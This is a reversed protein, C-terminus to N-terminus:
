VLSKAYRAARRHSELDAKLAVVTKQCERLRDQQALVRWEVNIARAEELYSKAYIVQSAALKLEYELEGIRRELRAVELSWYVSGDSCYRRREFPRGKKKKKM